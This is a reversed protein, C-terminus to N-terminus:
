DQKRMTISMLQQRVLPCGETRPTAAAVLGHHVAIHKKQDDSYKRDDGNEQAIPEVLFPSLLGGDSDADSIV